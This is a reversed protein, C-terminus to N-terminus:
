IESSSIVSYLLRVWRAHRPIHPKFIVFIVFFLLLLFALALPLAVALPAANLIHWM